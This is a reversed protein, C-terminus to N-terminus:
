ARATDPTPRLPPSPPRRYVFILGLVIPLLTAGYVLPILESRKAAVNEIGLFSAQVLVVVSVAAVIRRSQSRRSISGSILSGLGIMVFGLTWWPSALRKHGEVLYRGRDRSDPVSEEDAGLLDGIMRERPERYRAVVDERRDTLDVAYRDFYLVSMRHKKRDIEQRNGKFMIVRPGKDTIVLAGREAMLTEPRDPNDNLYVLIGRLEDNPSRQRVYVTIKDSIANFAGERLLVHSYSYRLRWQMERFKEYSKPVLYLNLLYGVAMTMLALVVAPWALMSQSMGSARMVVLERDGIMRSYVFLVSAFVALPLIFTLIDPVMLSTLRLFELVSVGKNVILEIFRLAGILWVFGTLGLTVLIAGWALQRFIYRSLGNM